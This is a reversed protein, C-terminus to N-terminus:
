QTNFALMIPLAVPKITARTLFVGFNGEKAAYARHSRGSIRNQIGNPM